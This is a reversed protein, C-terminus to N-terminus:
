VNVVPLQLCKVDQLTQERYMGPLLNNLLKVGIQKNITTLKTFEPRTQKPNNLALQVTLILSLNFGLM